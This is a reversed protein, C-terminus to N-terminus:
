ISLIIVKFFEINQNAQKNQHKKNQLYTKNM